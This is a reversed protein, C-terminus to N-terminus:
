VRRAFPWRAHVPPHVALSADLAKECAEFWEATAFPMLMAHNEVITAHMVVFARHAAMNANVAATVRDQQSLAM